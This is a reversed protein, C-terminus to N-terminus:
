RMGAGAIRQNLQNLQDRFLEGVDISVMLSTGESNRTAALGYKNAVWFMVGHSWDKADQRSAYVSVLSVGLGGRLRGAEYDWNLRNYGLWEVYLTPNSASNDTNRIEFREVGVGPHLVIWQGKPLSAPGLPNNAADTPRDDRYLVGNLLWEWPYQPRAETRYADWMAARKAFLDAFDALEDKRLVVLAAEVLAHSRLVAEVDAIAPRCAQAEPCRNGIPAALDGGAGSVSSVLAGDRPREVIRWATPNSVEKAIDGASIAARAEALRVQLPDRLAADRVNSQTWESVLQLLGAVTRKREARAQDKNAQDLLKVAPELSAPTHAKVDYCQQARKLNIHVRVAPAAAPDPAKLCDLQALAQGAFVLGAGFALVRINLLSRM